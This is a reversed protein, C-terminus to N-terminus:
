EEIMVEEIKEDPNDILACSKAVPSIIVEMAPPLTVLEVKSSRSRLHNAPVNTASTRGTPDEMKELAQKMALDKFRQRKAAEKMDRKKNLGRLREKEEENVKKKKKQGLAKMAKELKKNMQEYVEKISAESFERGRQAATIPRSAILIVDLLEEAVEYPMPSSSVWEWKHCDWYWFKSWPRGFAGKKILEKQANKEDLLLKKATAEDFVEPVVEQWHNHVQLPDYGFCDYYKAEIGITRDPIVALSDLKSLPIGDVKLSLYEDKTIGYWPSLLYKGVGEIRLCFSQPYKKPRGPRKPMPAGPNIDNSAKFLADRVEKANKEGEALVGKLDAIHSRSFHSPDPLERAMELIRKAIQNVERIYSEM